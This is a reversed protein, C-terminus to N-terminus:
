RCSLDRRFGSRRDSTRECKRMEAGSRSRARKSSPRYVSCKGLRIESSGSCNVSVLGVALAELV